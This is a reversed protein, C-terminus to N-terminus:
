QAIHIEHLPDIIRCSWMQLTDLAQHVQILPSCTLQPPWLYMDWAIWSLSPQGFHWKWLPSSPRPTILTFYFKFDVWKLTLFPVYLAQGELLISLVQSWSHCTSMHWQSGCKLFPPHCEQHAGPWLIDRNSSKWRTTVSSPFVSRNWGGRSGKPTSSHPTQRESHVRCPAQASLVSTETGSKKTM